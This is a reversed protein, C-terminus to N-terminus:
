LIRCLTDLIREGAIRLVRKDGVHVADMHATHKPRGNFPLEISFVDVVSRVFDYRTAVDIVALNKRYENLLTRYDRDWAYKKPILWPAPMMNLMLHMAPMPAGHGAMTEQWERLVGELGRGYVTANLKSAHYGPSYFVVDPVREDPWQPDKPHPGGKRERVFDGWTYPLRWAESVSEQSLFSYSFTLWIQRESDFIGHLQFDPDPNRGSRWKKRASFTLCTGGVRKRGLTEFFLRQVSDGVFSIWLEKRQDSLPCAGPSLIAKRPYSSTDCTPEATRTVEGTCADHWTDRRKDYYGPRFSKPSCPPPPRYAAPTTYEEVARGQPNEAYSTCPVTAVAEHGEPLALHHDGNEHIVTASLVSDNDVTAICIRDEEHSTEHHQRSADGAGPQPATGVFSKKREVTKFDLIAPTLKRRQGEKVLGDLGCTTCLYSWAAVVLLATVAAAIRRAINRPPNTTPDSSFSTTPPPVCPGSSSTPDM